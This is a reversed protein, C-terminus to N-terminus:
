NIHWLCHRPPYFVTCSKWHTMGNTVSNRLSFFFSLVSGLFPVQCDNLTNESWIIRCVYNKLLVLQPFKVLFRWSTLNSLRCKKRSQGSESCTCQNSLVKRAVATRGNQFLKFIWTMRMVGLQRLTLHAHWLCISERWNKDTKRQDQPCRIFM